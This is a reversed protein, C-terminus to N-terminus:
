LLYIASFPQVSMCSPQGQGRTIFPSPPVANNGIVNCLSPFPGNWVNPLALGTKGSLICEMCAIQIEWSHVQINYTSALARKLCCLTHIPKSCWRHPAHTRTFAQVYAHLHEHISHERLPLLGYTRHTLACVPQIHWSFLSWLIDYAQGWLVVIILEYYVISKKWSYIECHALYNNTSHKKKSQNIMFAPMQCPFTKQSHLCCCFKFTRITKLLHSRHYWDSSDQFSPSFYRNLLGDALPLWAAETM